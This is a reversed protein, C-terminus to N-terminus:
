GQKIVPEIVQILSHLFILFPNLNRLNSMKISRRIILVSVPVLRAAVQVVEGRRRCNHNGKRRRGDLPQDKRTLAPGPSGQPCQASIERTAYVLVRQLLQPRFLKDGPQTFSRNKIHRALAEIQGEWVEVEGGQVRGKGVGIRDKLHVPM